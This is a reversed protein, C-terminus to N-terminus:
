DPTTKRKWELEWIVRQTNLGKCAVFNRSWTNLFAIHADEPVVFSPKPGKGWVHMRQQQFCKCTLFYWEEVKGLQFYLWNSWPAVHPMKFNILGKWLHQRQMVHNAYHASFETAWPQKELKWKAFMFSLSYLSISLIQRRNHWPLIKWDFRKWLGEEM